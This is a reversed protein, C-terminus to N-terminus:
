DVEVAASAESGSEASSEAVTSSSSSEGQDRREEAQAQPGEANAVEAPPPFCRLCADAGPPVGDLRYFNKAGYYWRGCPTVWDARDLDEENPAAKHVKFTRPRMVLTPEVEQAALRANRRLGRRSRRRGPPGRGRSGSRRATQQRPGGSGAVRAPTPWGRPGVAAAAAGPALALAAGQHVKGRRPLDM